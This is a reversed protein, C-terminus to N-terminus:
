GSAVSQAPRILSFLDKLTNDLVSCEESPKAMFKAGKEDFYARGEALIRQKKKELAEKPTIYETEVTGDRYQRITKLKTLIIKKVKKLMNIPQLYRVKAKLARYIRDSLNPALCYGLEANEPSERTIGDKESTKEKVIIRKIKYIFGAAELRNVAKRVTDKHKQIKKGITKQCPNTMQNKDTLDLYVAQLVLIDTETHKISEGAPTKTWFNGKRIFYCIKNVNLANLVCSNEIFLM